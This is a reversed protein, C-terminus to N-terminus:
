SDRTVVNARALRDPDLVPLTERGVLATRGDGAIVAPVVSGNHDLRIGFWAGADDEIIVIHDGTGETDTPWPVLPVARGRVNLLGRVATDTALPATPQVGRVIGRVAEVPIAVARGAITCRLVMTM